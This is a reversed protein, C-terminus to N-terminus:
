LGIWTVKALHDAKRKSNKVMGLMKLESLSQYFLALAQSKDSISVRNDEDEIDEKTSALGGSSVVDFFANWLDFINIVSGCELYLQYLIATAPQNSPVTETRSDTDNEEGADAPILYDFPKTLAREITARPKPAFADKIPVRADHVFVEYLFLDERPTFFHEQAFSQLSSSLQDIFKTYEIDQESLNAKDRTLQLRQGVLTTSHILRHNDYESRFPEVGKYKRRLAVFASKLTKYDPLLRLSSLKFLREVEISSLKKVAALIDDVVNAYLEGALAQVLFDPLNAKIPSEAKRFPSVSALFDFIHFFMEATRTLGHLKDENSDVAANVEKELSVDDGLLCAVKDTDDAQLLRDIYRIFTLHSCAQKPCFQLNGRM